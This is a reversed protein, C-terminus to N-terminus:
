DGGENGNGGENGARSGPGTGRRRDPNAATWPGHDVRGERSSPLPTEGEVESKWRPRAARLQSKKFAIFELVEDRAEDSLVAWDALLREAAPDAPAAPITTITTITTITGLPSPPVAPARSAGSPGGAVDLDVGESADSADAAEAGEANEASEAGDAGAARAASADDFFRSMPLEFVQLIKFLTDLGVKYEGNEMRSLDSQTVGIKSALDAQTLHRSKRIQRIKQGVLLIQAPRPVASM